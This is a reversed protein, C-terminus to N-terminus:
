QRGGRGGGWGLKTRLKEYFHPGGLSVLRARRGARSVTIVDGGELRVAVQGDATAAAEQASGLPPIEVEIREHGPVVLPRVSLVHPCIPTMILVDLGPGVIPGTASLSYATSGTPTSIILGDAILLALPEGEVKTKLRLVQSFAGNRVVLDNLALLSHVRKGKRSIQASLMMREAIDCDGKHVRELAQELESAAAETNFGLGGLHVGLIPIGAPAGLRAARLITGDGGLSLLLDAGKVMEAQGECALDPRRLWKADRATLRVSIGRKELWAISKRAAASALRKRATMQIAVAKM